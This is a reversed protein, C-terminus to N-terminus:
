EIKQRGAPLLPLLRGANITEIVKDPDRIEALRAVLEAMRDRIWIFFAENQETWPIQHADREGNARNINSAWAPKPYTLPSAISEYSYRKNGAGDICVTEEYTGAWVDVKYGVGSSNWEGRKKDPEPYLDIRYVIVRNHEVNLKRFTELDTEFAKLAEEQTNGRSTGHGLADAVVQPLKVYFRKQPIPRNYSETRRDTSDYCVAVVTELHPQRPDLGLKMKQQKVKM